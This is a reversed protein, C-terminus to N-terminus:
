VTAIRSNKNKQQMGDLWMQYIDLSEPCQQCMTRDVHQVYRTEACLVAFLEPIYQKWVSAHTIM